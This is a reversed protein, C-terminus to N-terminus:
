NRNGTFRINRRLIEQKLILIFDAQLKLRIADYYAELILEDSLQELSM